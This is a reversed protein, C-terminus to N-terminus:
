QQVLPIHQLECCLTHHRCHRHLHAVPCHACHHGVRSHKCKIHPPASIHHLRHGAHHLPFFSPISLAPLVNHMGANILRCVCCHLWTVTQLCKVYVKKGFHQCMCMCYKLQMDSVETSENLQWHIGVLEKRAATKLHKVM